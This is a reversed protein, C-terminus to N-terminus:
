FPKFINRCSPMCDLVDPSFKMANPASEFILILFPDRFIGILLFQNNVSYPPLQYLNISYLPKRIVDALNFPM